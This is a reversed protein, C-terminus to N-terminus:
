WLLSAIALDAKRESTLCFFLETASVTTHCWQTYRPSHWDRHPRYDLSRWKDSYTKNPIPLRTRAWRDIECSVPHGRKLGFVPTSIETWKPDREERGGSESISNTGRSTNYNAPELGVSRKWNRTISTGQHTDTALRQNTLTLLQCPLLSHWM